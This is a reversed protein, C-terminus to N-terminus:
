EEVKVSFDANRDSRVHKYGETVPLGVAEELKKLTDEIHMIGMECSHGLGSKREPHIMKMYYDNTALQARIKDLYPKIDTM